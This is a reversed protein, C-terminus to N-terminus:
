RPIQLREGPVISASSLHNTALIRDVTDQTSADAPTFRDAITWLSEGRHVIVSTAHAPSAAYLRSQSLAPIAVIAALAALAVAPMLDIRKRKYAYM